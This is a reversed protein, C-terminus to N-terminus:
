DVKCALTKFSWKYDIYVKDNRANNETFEGDHISSPPIELTEM